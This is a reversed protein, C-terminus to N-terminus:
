DASLWHVQGRLAHEAPRRSVFAALADVVRGIPVRRRALLLGSFDADRVLPTYSRANETVLARRESTAVSLLEDARAARLDRRESVAAVDHCRERLAKAVKPSYHADLLLRL